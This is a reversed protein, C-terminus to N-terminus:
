NLTIEVSIELTTRFSIYIRKVCFVFTKYKINKRSKNQNTPSKATSKLSTTFKLSTLM